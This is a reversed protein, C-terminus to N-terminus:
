HISTRSYQTSTQYRTATHMYAAKDRLTSFTVRALDRESTHALTALQQLMLSTSTTLRSSQTLQEALEQHLEASRVQERPLLSDAEVISDCHPMFEGTWCCVLLVEICPLVGIKVSLVNM